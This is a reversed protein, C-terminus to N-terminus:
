KKTIREKLRGKYKRRVYIAVPIGAIVGVIAAIFVPRKWAAERVDIQTEVSNRPGVFLDPERPDTVNVRLTYNGLPGTIWTFEVTKKEGPDLTNDSLGGEEDFFLPDIPIPDGPDEGTRFAWFSVQVNQAPARDERNTVNLRITVMVSGFLTSEEPSSPEIRFSKTDIELDPRTKADVEVVLKRTANGTNGAVDTVNLVVDYNGYKEYSHTVNVGETTNGDGFDWVFALEDLEDFNDETASADFFYTKGEVISTAERFDEDLITFEVSPPSVDEVLVSMTANVSEKGSQDVVTLNVTFNGPESFTWDVSKGTADVKGDGDLDWTWDRIEGEMEDHVMDTSNGGFFKVRTGEEISISTGNSNEGLGTVNNEIRAIPALGDVFLTFNRYTVNGGTEIITLNGSYNGMVDFTVEPRIGYAKVPEPLSENAFTWTFNADPSVRNEPSNPDTSEEASFTINVETPVIATYNEVSANLETFKGSPGLVQVRAEGHLSREVEMEVTFDGPAVQPDVLVRTYGKVEVTGNIATVTREYGPVIQVTYTFDVINVGSVDHSASLNVFYGQEEAPIPDGMVTYNARSTISAGGDPLFTVTATYDTEGNMVDSLYPQSNTTFLGITDVHKPGATLVWDQFATMENPELAGDGDGLALDIQLHLNRIFSFPLGPVTSDQNLTLNRWITINNWDEQVYQITTDVMEESSEELVTDIRESTTVSIQTINAKRGDADVILIFDGSYTFFTYSSGSVNAVILRKADDTGVDINYLFAVLGEELFSGDPAFALGVLKIGPLLVVEVPEPPPVEVARVEKAFTEKEVRLEFSGTWLSFTVNGTVNTLQVDLVQEETVNFLEVTANPIPDGDSDVVGIQLEETTPPMARMEISKVLNATDDFRFISTENDFFGDKRVTIYYFGSSPSFTYKGDPGTLTTLPDKQGHADFLTVTVGELLNTPDGEETVVGLIQKSEAASM